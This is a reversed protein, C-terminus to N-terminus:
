MVIITSIRYAMSCQETRRSGPMTSNKWSNRKVIYLISNTNTQTHTGTKLSELIELNDYFDKMKLAVALSQKLWFM